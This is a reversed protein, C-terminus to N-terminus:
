FRLCLQPNDTWRNGKRINERGWMPRLNSYHSCAELQKPDNLDFWSQPIIHDIHWGNHGYNAWTMGRKFQGEIHAKFEKPTCGVLRQAEKYTASRIGQKRQSNKVMRALLRKMHAIEGKHNAHRKRQKARATEAVSPILQYRAGIESLNNVLAYHRIYNATNWEV